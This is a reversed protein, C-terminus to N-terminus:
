IHSDISVIAPLVLQNNHNFYRQSQVIAFKEAPVTKGAFRVRLDPVQRLLQSIEAQLEPRNHEVMIM